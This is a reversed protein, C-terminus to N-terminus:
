HAGPLAPKYILGIVIGVVTWEVFYAAAQELTLKLGINSSSAASETSPARARAPPRRASASSERAARADRRHRPAPARPPPRTARAPRDGRACCIRAGSRVAASWRAPRCVWPEAGSTVSRARRTVAGTTRCTSVCTATPPTSPTIAPSPGPRDRRRPRGHRGGRRQRADDGGSLLAAAPVLLDSSLGREESVHDPRPHLAARVQVGAARALGVRVAGGARAGSRPAPVGALSSM